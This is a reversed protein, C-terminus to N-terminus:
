EFHRPMGGSVVTVCRQSPGDPPVDSNRAGSAGLGRLAGQVQCQLLQITNQQHREPRNRSSSNCAMGQALCPAMPIHAALTLLHASTPRRQPADSPHRITYTLPAPPHTALHTPPAAPIATTSFAASQTTPATCWTGWARGTCWGDCPRNNHVHVSQLHPM